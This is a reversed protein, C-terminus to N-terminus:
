NTHYRKRVKYLALFGEHRAINRLSHLVGADYMRLESAKMDGSKAHLHQTVMRTRVVWFPNTVIDSIGGAGVAAAVHQWAPQPEDGSSLATKFENYLPFYVAWFLPVTFLTPTLGRYLGRVGEDKVIWSLTEFAGRRKFKGSSPCTAQVQLRTKAVDLPSM